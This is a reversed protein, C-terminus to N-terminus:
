FFNTFTIIFNAIFTFITWMDLQDGRSVYMDLQLHRQFYRKFNTNFKSHKQGCKKVMLNTLMWSDLPVM